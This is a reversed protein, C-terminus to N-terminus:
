FIKVSHHAVNDECEIINLTRYTFRITFSVVLARVASEFQRETQFLCVCEAGFLKRRFNVEGEEGNTGVSIAM